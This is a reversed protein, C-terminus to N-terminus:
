QGVATSDAPRPARAPVGGMMQPPQAPQVMGLRTAALSTVREVSMLRLLEARLKENDARAIDRDHELSAIDALLDNVAIANSIYLVALLAAGLLMSAALWRRLFPRIPGGQTPEPLPIQEPSKRGAGDVRARRVQSTTQTLSM